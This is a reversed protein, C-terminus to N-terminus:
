RPWNLRPEARGSGTEGGSPGAHPRGLPPRTASPPIPPRSADVSPEARRTGPPDVYADDFDHRRASPERMRLSLSRIEGQIEDLRLDITDLRSKVGLVAFPMVLLALVYLLLPVALVIPLWWPLWDPLAFPLTM